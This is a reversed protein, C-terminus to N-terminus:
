LVAQDWDEFRFSWIKEAVSMGYKSMEGFDDMKSSKRGIHQVVSPTIAWRLEKRENAYEEILVDPAGKVRDAMYTTLMLARGRPFVLAQSCCGFNSMLSVGAPLPAVTIRGVLFYLAITCILVVAALGLVRDNLRAISDRKRLLILVAMPVAFVVASWFLYTPWHETNWGLFEETYFLRLYLFEVSAHMLASKREAQELGEIARAYWGQMAVVDDEFIAIYTTHQQACHQLLYRYDYLGKERYEPGDNEEMDKIHRVENESVDYTLVEDALSHLWAEGYSPHVAPSSHPIFVTFYIEAREDATLGALLSGVTERLYGGNERAISPIGVCVKKQTASSPEPVDSSTNHALAVFDLAQQRRILSYRPAYGIRPNFFVSTPDRRSVEHIRRTAWFVFLGVAVTVLRPLTLRM